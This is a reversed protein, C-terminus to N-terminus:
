FILVEYGQDLFRGISPHGAPDDSLKLGQEQVAPIITNKTACARCVCDIVGLQKAQRFLEAYPKTENRLLAVQKTADAEIVVRVDHGRSRLDLANVLAHAFVVPDANFTFLVFKRM